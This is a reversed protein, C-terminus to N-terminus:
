DSAPVPKCQEAVWAYVRRTQDESLDLWQKDRLKGAFEQAQECRDPAASVDVTKRDPAASAEPEPKPKLKREVEESLERVTQQDRLRKADAQARQEPTPPPEATADRRWVETSGKACPGSQISITGDAGQCKFLLNKDAAQAPGALGTFFMLCLGAFPKNTTSM